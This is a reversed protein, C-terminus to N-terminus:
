YGFLDKVVNAVPAVATEGAPTAIAVEIKSEKEEESFSEKILEPFSGIKSLLMDMVSKRFKNKNEESIEKDNCGDRCYGYSCNNEIFQALSLVERQFNNVIRLARDKVEIEALKETAFGETLITGSNKLIRSKFNDM